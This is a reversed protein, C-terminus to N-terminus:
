VLPQPRATAGIDSLMISLIEIDALADLALIGASRRASIRQDETADSDQLTLMHYIFDNLCECLSETYEIARTRNHPESLYVSGM